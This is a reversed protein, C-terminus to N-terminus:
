NFLTKNINKLYKKYFSNSAKLLIKKSNVKDNTLHFKNSVKYAPSFYYYYNFMKKDKYDNSLEFFINRIYNNKKTIAVTAKIRKKEVTKYFSYINSISNSKVCIWKKSNKYKENKNKKVCKLPKFNIILRKIDNLIYNIYKESSNLLYLFLKEIDTYPVKNSIYLEEKTLKDNIYNYYEEEDMLKHLYNFFLKTKKFNDTKKLSKIYYLVYDNTMGSGGKQINKKSYSKKNIMKRLGLEYVSKESNKVDKKKNNKYFTKLEINSWSFLELIIKDLSVNKYECNSLENDMKKFFLNRKKLHIKKFKYPVLFFGMQNDLWHVCSTEDEFSFKNYFLQLIKIIINKKSTDLLDSYLKIKKNQNEQILRM